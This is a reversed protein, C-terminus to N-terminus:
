EQQQLAERLLDNLTASFSAERSRSERKVRELLGDDLTGTTRISM